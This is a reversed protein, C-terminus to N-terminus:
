FRKGWRRPAALTTRNLSREQQDIGGAATFLGRIVTTWTAVSNPDLIWPPSWTVRRSLGRVPRRSQSSHCEVSHRDRKRDVRPPNPFVSANAIRSPPFSAASQRSEITIRDTFGLAALTKPKVPGNM